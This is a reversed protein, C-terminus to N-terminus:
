KWSTYSLFISVSFAEKQVRIIHQKLEAEDTIRTEQKFFALAEEDPQYFEDELAREWTAPRQQNNSM